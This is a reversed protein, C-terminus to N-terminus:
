DELLWDLANVRQIGNHVAPPDDDLTVLYKPNHDRINNLPRLERELTSKERTTLATQFYATRGEKV